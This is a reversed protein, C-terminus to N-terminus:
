KKEIKLSEKVIEFDEGLRKRAAEWAKEETEGTGWVLLGDHVQFMNMETTSSGKYILVHNV